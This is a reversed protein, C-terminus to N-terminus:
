GARLVGTLTIVKGDRLIRVAVRDGPKLGALFGYIRDLSAGEASVAIGGLDLIIDGGALLEQGAVTIRVAGARLGWDAAPSGEAIRQVLLGAPQPVNFLRALEETLLVADVGTWFTARGLLLKQAVNSTVAFGLGEFGGSRSLIHSVIGVVQGNMNFMPGGSNGENIAADTQLLELTVGGVMAALARRGGVHGASLSHGIGYPAGVVFIEDGVELADSDALRAPSTGPPVQELQLVALDARQISGIVRARSVTGDVFQVAVLDSTQVVHAATLVKGDASILVGSGLGSFRVFGAQPLPAPTRELTRVEVVSPNVRKFLERLQAAESSTPLGMWAFLFVVTLGRM